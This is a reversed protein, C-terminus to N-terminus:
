SALSDLYDQFAENPTRMGITTHLRRRNYWTEIWNFLGLRLQKASKWRYRDVLERKLTSFFSEAAANDYCVGRRGMSQRIRYSECVVGYVTSTYQSGRDSHFILGVPVSGRRGVAAHLADSVLETRMHDAFAWGLLEKTCADIVTALYWFRNEVWIYTIDGYWVTNPFAPQFNRAVLDPFPAELRDRRTTVTSRERGTLGVIGAGRMLRAVRRQSVHVGVKALAGHIRPSGYTDASEDHFVRIHTLLKQDAENRFACNSRGTRNWDYYSSEPVAFVRCLVRIPYTAKWTDIFQYKVVKVWFATAKKLIEREM